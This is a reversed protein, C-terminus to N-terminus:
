DQSDNKDRENSLYCTIRFDTYEQNFRRRKTAYQRTVDRFLRSDMLGKQLRSVAKGSQDYGQLTLLGEQNLNIYQYNIEQPTLLYLAKVIDAVFFNKRQEEDILSVLQMQGKAKELQPDLQEIQASIKKLYIRDQVLEMTWLGLALFGALVGLALFLALEKKKVRQQKTDLIEQPILNIMPSEEQWAGGVCHVFSQGEELKVGEVGPLSKQGSFSMVDVPIDEQKILVDKLTQGEEQTAVVVIKEVDAGPMKKHYAGLTLDIQETLFAVEDKLRPSGLVISRSFLLQKGKGICVEACTGDLHVLLVVTSPAEKGAKQYWHYLCFSSVLIKQTHLGVRRLGQLYQDIFDRHVAVVVVRTYGGPEVSLVMHGFLIKERPYPVINVIQLDIMRRLEEDKTSPLVLQRVVVQRRGIILTVEHGEIEKIPVDQLDSFTIVDGGPHERRKLTGDVVSLKERQIKARLFKIYQDEIQLICQM